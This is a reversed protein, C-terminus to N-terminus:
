RLDSRPKNGRPNSGISPDQLRPTQRGSSQGEITSVEGTEMFQKFNRLDQTVVKTTLGSLFGGLAQGTKGAPPFYVFKAQVETGQGGPLGHFQVMGENNIESGSVSRWVLLENDIVDIVEADWELTTKTKPVRAKWHWRDQGVRRVEDIHEMCRALNSLDSWTDFVEDVPRNVTISARVETSGTAMTNLARQKFDGDFVRNKKLGSYLLGGGVGALGLGFFSRWHRLGLLALFGGGALLAPSQLPLLGESSPREVPGAPRHPYETMSRQEIGPSEDSQYVRTRRHVPPASKPSNKPIDQTM